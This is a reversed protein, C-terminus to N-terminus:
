FIVVIESTLLFYFIKYFSLGLDFGISSFWNTNNIFNLHKFALLM